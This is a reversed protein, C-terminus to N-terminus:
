KPSLVIVLTMIDWQQEYLVAVAAAAYPGFSWECVPRSSRGENLVSRKGM